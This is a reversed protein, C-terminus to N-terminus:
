MRSCRRRENENTPAATPARQRRPGRHDPWPSPSISNRSPGSGPGASTSTACSESPREASASPPTSCRASAVRPWTPAAPRADARGPCRRRDGPDPDPPDRRLLRPRRHRSARLGPRIRQHEPSLRARLRDLRPLSLALLERMRRGARQQRGEPDGSSSDGLRDGPCRTWISSRRPARTCRPRWRSLHRRSGLATLAGSCGTRRRGALEPLRDGAPWSSGLAIAGRRRNAEAGAHDRRGSEALFIAGARQKGAHRQLEVGPATVPQHPGVARALAREHAQEGAVLLRGLPRDRQDLARADAHQPLIAEEVVARDDEVERHAAVRHDPVREGFLPADGVAAVVGFAAGSPRGRPGSRRARRSCAPPASRGRHQLPQPNGGGDVVRRQARQRAPELQPHQQRLDQDAADVDQQEVLRGVVEVDQGDAPELLEQGVVGAARHDDRM